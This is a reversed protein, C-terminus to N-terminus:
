DIIGIIETPKAPNVFINEGHLDDHWLHGSTLSPDTPLLVELLQLYSDVAGLRNKLTPQYLGPGYLMALQKPIDPFTEIAREERLGIAKRYEYLSNGQHLHADLSPGRDYCLSSRGKDLWDHGTAPGVAFQVQDFKKSYYLSGFASFKLRTWAREYKFIQVLIKMKSAPDLSPWITGLPIGDIKQMIIYEVGVTNDNDARSNWTYVKPAPTDLVNRMFDTTAAEGATTYHPIGANPNPVKGIVQMGNDFHSSTHKTLCGMLVSKLRSATNQAHRRSLEEQEDFVFRGRTFNFFEGNTNWGARPQLDVVRADRNSDAALHVFRRARLQTSIGKIQTVRQDGTKFSENGRSERSLWRSVELSRRM